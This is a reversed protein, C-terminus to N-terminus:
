DRLQGARIAGLPAHLLVFTTLKMIRSRCDALWSKRAGAARGAFVVLAAPHKLRREACQRNM